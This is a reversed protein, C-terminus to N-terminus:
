DENKSDESQKDDDNESEESIDVDYGKRFKSISAIGAMFTLIFILGIVVIGTKTTDNGNPSQGFIICGFPISFLIFVILMSVIAERRNRKMNVFRKRPKKNKSEGDGRYPLEKWWGM